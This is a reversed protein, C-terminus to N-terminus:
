RRVPLVYLLTVAVKFCLYAIGGLVAGAIGGVVMGVFIRLLFLFAQVPLCFTTPDQRMEMVVDPKVIFLIVGCVFSVLFIGSFVIRALESVMWSQYRGCEPCRHPSPALPPTYRYKQELEHKWGAQAAEEWQQQVNPYPSIPTLPTEESESKQFAFEYAFNNRCYMCEVSARMRGSIRAQLKWLSENYPRERLVERYEPKQERGTAIDEPKLKRFVLEREWTTRLYRSQRTGQIVDFGINIELLETKYNKQKNPM